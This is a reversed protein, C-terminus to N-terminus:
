NSTTSHPGRVSEGCVSTIEAPFFFLSDMVGRIANNARWHIEMCILDIHIYVGIFPLDLANFVVVLNPRRANYMYSWRLRCYQYTMSVGIPTLVLMHIIILYIYPCRM